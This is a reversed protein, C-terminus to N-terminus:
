NIANNIIDFDILQFDRLINENWNPVGFDKLFKLTAASSNEVLDLSELDICKDRAKTIVVTRYPVENPKISSVLPHTLLRHNLHVYNRVTQFVRMVDGDVFDVIYNLKFKELSMPNNTVIIIPEIM